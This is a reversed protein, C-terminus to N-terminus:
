SYVGDFCILTSGSASIKRPSWFCENFGLITRWLWFISRRKFHFCILYCCWTADWIMLVLMLAVIILSAVSIDMDRMNVYVSPDIVSGVDGYVGNISSFIGGMGLLHEGMVSIIRLFVIAGIALIVRKAFSSQFHRYLNIYLQSLYTFAGICLMSKLILPAPSNFASGARETMLVSEIARIVTDDVLLWLAVIGVSMAFLDLWWKTRDSAIVYFVTIGIHRNHLTIYAASLMWATACLVMVVEFVWQTPSDFVYRSIVEYATALSCLLYLQSVALGSFKSFHDFFKFGDKTAKFVQENAPESTQVQTSM